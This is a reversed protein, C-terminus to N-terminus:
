LAQSERFVRHDFGERIKGPKPPNGANRPMEQKTAANNWTRDGDDEQAQGQTELDEKGELFM